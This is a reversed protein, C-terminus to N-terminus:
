GCHGCECEPLTRNDIAALIMRAKGEMKAALAENYGVEFVKHEYTERNRYIVLASHLGSYRMYMQVQAFHKYSPKGKKLIKGWAITSVSKLEIVYNHGVGDMHGKLREDFPAVVEVNVQDILGLGILLERLNDEQEYGAYCMRQTHEDIRFGERFERVVRRPCETLHSVSLYARTKEFGSHAVIYENIQEEVLQPTIQTM